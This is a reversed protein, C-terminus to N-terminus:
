TTAGDAAAPRAVDFRYCRHMNATRGLRAGNLELTAVTDIGDFVLDVREDAAGAALTWTPEYRWDARHM